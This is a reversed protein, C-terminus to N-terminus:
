INVLVLFFSSIGWLLAIILTMVVCAKAALEHRAFCGLAFLMNVIVIAFMIAPSVFMWPWAQVQDIGLYINYHLIVVGSRIGVPVLRYAIFSTMGLVCLITGVTIWRIFPHHWGRRASLQWDALKM